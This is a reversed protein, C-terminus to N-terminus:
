PSHSGEIQLAEPSEEVEHLAEAWEERSTLYYVVGVVSILVSFVRYFLLTVMGQGSPIVGGDLTPMLVFLRDLVFEAPGISIPLIQMVGALPAFVFHHGLSHVKPFMAIGVLFVAVAFLLHVPFTMLLSIALIGPKRGYARFSVAFRAIPGGILPLRELFLLSKGNTWDPAWAAILLVTAVLSAVLTLRCASQLIMPGTNYFGTILIAVSAVLFLVYLGVVRDVFVSAVCEARHGPYHRAVLVAKALDGGVIGMPALNLLYGVFSFRLSERFAIPVDVARILLWWRVFTIMVSLFTAAFALVLISWNSAAYTLLARLREPHFGREDSFLGEGRRVSDWVLYALIGLSLAIKAFQICRKKLLGRKEM